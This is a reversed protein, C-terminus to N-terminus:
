NSKEKNKFIMKSVSYVAYFYIIPLLFGLFYIVIQPIVTDQFVFYLGPFFPLDIPLGSVLVEFSSIPATNTGAFILHTLPAFVVLIFTAWRTKRNKILNLCYVIGAIALYYLFVLFLDSLSRNYILCSIFYITLLMLAFVFHIKIKRIM